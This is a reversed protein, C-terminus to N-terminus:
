VLSVRIRDLLHGPDHHLLHDSVELVQHHEETLVDAVDDDSKGVGAEEQFM